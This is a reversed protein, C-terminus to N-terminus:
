FRWQYSVKVFLQRASPFTPSSTRQLIPPFTDLLKENEYRDTYGVYVATGPHLLWRVLLDLTLDKSGDQRVLSTDSAVVNYDVIARLSWRSTFQVNARSRVLRTELMTHTATREVSGRRPRTALGSFIYTEDFRIRTTPRFTATFTMDRTHALFPALGPAPYYNVGVGDSVFAYLTM